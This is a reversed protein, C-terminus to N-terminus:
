SKRKLVAMSASAARVKELFARLKPVDALPVTVDRVVLDQKVAITGDEHSVTQRFTGFTEDLTAGPPLEDVAYGPPLTVRSAGRYTKAGLRVPLKREGAPIDPLGRYPLLTPRFLLLAGSTQAHRPAAFSASLRVPGSPPATPVLESVTSGPLLRSIWAQIQRELEQGSRAGIEHRLDAGETGSAEERLTGNVSGDTGLTAVTERSYLNAEPASRPLTVLADVSPAVILGRSGQLSEPLEGPPTDPDTPDFFLLRGLTPHTLVAPATVDDPVRIATIAHNFQQPTPWEPRVYSADGLYVVVLHAEIGSEGLLTKLLNAKDKCDGYGGALVASAAHPKYGGGRGLGTQVSVYNFAQVFRALALLKAWPSAAPETLSRARTALAPATDASAASIRGLWSSVDAWSRFTELPPSGPHTGAPPLVTLSLRPALQSLPPSHPETKLGPLDRLEWRTGSGDAVPAPGDERRNFVFAEHTWGPPLQLSLAARRVPRREQFTFDLQTLVSREELTWTAGFVAGPEAADGASVGRVRAENFVDNPAAAVDFTEDKKLEKVSGDPRLVWGRIETVKASGTAYAVSAMAADRGPKELVRVSRREETVVLGSPEFRVRRESRLVVATVDKEPAVTLAADERLWPPPDAARALRPAAVLVLAALARARGRRTV